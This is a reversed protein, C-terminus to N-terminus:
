VVSIHVDLHLLWNMLRQVTVTDYKNTDDDSGADKEEFDSVNQNLDAKGATVSCGLILGTVSDSAYAESAEGLATCINLICSSTISSQYGDAVPM